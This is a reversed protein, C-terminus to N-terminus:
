HGIGTSGDEGVIEQMLAIVGAALPSLPRASNTAVAVTSILDPEVIPRLVYQSRMEDGRFVSEPMVGHGFGKRVLGLMSSFADLEWAVELKLGFRSLQSELFIRIAHPRSPLLLNFNALDKLHVPPGFLDSGEPSENASVLYLPETLLTVLDMHPLPQPNILVGLDVRGMSLWEMIYTQGELISLGANPFRAQFAFALPTSLFRSVSSPMGITVRGTPVGRLEKVERRAREAQLLMARAHKVLLAGAETPQVGRGNRILLTQRLEVELLRIQRSLSPQTIGLLISARTVSELEAVNVFYELQKLDM